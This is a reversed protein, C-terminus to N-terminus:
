HRESLCKSHDALIDMVRCDEVRGGACQDVMRELETRLAQLSEIKRKVAELQRRAAQDAAMCSEGPAEALSLLDRVTDLSFGLERCHRILSLRARHGEGYRRQNGQTRAPEPMLGIEEYYRITPIKCGTARSLDGISFNMTM